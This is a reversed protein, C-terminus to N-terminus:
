GQPANKQLLELERIREKQERERQWRATVDRIIAAVGQVQGATDTVVVMSFETSIRSGDKRLAPASLMEVSYRSTGSAMVRFYGDWHRQRLNEPIILDLSKGLAEESRYGFMREAGSNWFQIIGKSDSFMVADNANEIITSCLRETDM